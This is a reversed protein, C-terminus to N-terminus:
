ITGDVAQHVLATDSSLSHPDASDHRLRSRATAPDIPNRMDIGGGSAARAIRSCRAHDHSLAAPDGDCHRRPARSCRRRRIVGFGNTALWLSGDRALLLARRPRRGGSEDIGDALAEIHGRGSPCVIGM